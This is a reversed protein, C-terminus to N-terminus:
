GKPPYPDNGYSNRDGISGDKRHILHEVKDRRATSLNPSGLTHHRLFNSTTTHIRGEVTIFPALVHNTDDLPLAPEGLARAVVASDYNVPTRVRVQHPM